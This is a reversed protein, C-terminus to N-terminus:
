AITLPRLIGAVTAVLARVLSGIRLLYETGNGVIGFAYAREQADAFVPPSGRANSLLMPAYGLVFVAFAAYLAPRKLWARTSRSSLMWMGLGLLMVMTTPHLQLSLAALLAGLALLRCSGRTVGAYVTALTATTFFPVWASAWAYHSNWVVLTPSTLALSAAILAARRNWMVCGLWYVASVALAGFLVSVMRPMEISAGFLRFLAALTHHFFPGTFDEILSLLPRRGLAIDLAWLGEQGEDTYAPIYLMNPLRIALALAFLVASIAISSAFAKLAPSQSPIM